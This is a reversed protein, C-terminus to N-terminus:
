GMLADMPRSLEIVKLKNPKARHSWDKMTKGSHPKQHDTELTWGDSHKLDFNFM